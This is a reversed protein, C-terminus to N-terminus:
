AGGIGDVSEPGRFLLELIARNRAPIQLDTRSLGRLVDAATRRAGKMYWYIAEDHQEVMPVGLVRHFSLLLPEEETDPEDVATDVVTDAQEWEELLRLATSRIADRTSDRDGIQTLIEACVPRAADRMARVKAVM